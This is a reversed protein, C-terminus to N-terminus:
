KLTGDYFGPIISIVLLLVGEIWVCCMGELLIRMIIANPKPPKPISKPISKPKRNQITIAPSITQARAWARGRTVAEFLPADMGVVVGVVGGLVSEGQFDQFLAVGPALDGPLLKLIHMPGDGVSGNM